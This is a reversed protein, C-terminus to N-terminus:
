LAMFIHARQFVVCEGFPDEVKGFNCRADSCLSPATDLRIVSGSEKLRSTELARRKGPDDKEPFARQSLLRDRSLWRELPVVFAPFVKRGHEGRGSLLSPTVMQARSLGRCPWFFLTPGTSGGCFEFIIQPRTDSHANHDSPLM